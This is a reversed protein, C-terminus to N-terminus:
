IIQDLQVAFGLETRSEVGSDRFRGACIGRSVWEGARPQNELEWADCGVSRFFSNESNLEEVLSRMEPRTKLEPIDDILRMDKKLDFYGFNSSEREQRPQPLYPVGTPIGDKDGLICIM